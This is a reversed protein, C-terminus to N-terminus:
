VTDYGFNMCYSQWIGITRESDHQTFFIAAFAAIKNPHISCDPIVNKCYMVSNACKKSDDIDSFPLPYLHPYM